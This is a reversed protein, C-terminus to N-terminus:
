GATLKKLTQRIVAHAADPSTVDRVAHEMPCPGTNTRNIIMDTEVSYWYEIGYNEFVEIAATSIVDAYVDSVGLLVYLFAAAKGIVKDAACYGRFDVGSDIWSLLPKVGREVSTCINKGDTLVCTYGGKKLMKCAKLLNDRM